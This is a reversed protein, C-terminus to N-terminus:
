NTLPKEIGYLVGIRQRLMLAGDKSLKYQADYFLPVIQGQIYAKLTLRGLSDKALQIEFGCPTEFLGAASGDKHFYFEERM